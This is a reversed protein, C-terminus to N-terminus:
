WQIFVLGSAGDGGNGQEIDYDDGSKSITLSGGGGGSGAGTITSVTGLLAGNKFVAATLGNYSDNTGSFGGLGGTLGEKPEVATKGDGGIPMSTKENVIESYSNKKDPDILSAGKGGLVESSNKIYSSEGSKGQTCENNTYNQNTKIVNPSYVGGKGGKGPFMVVKQTLIQYTTQSLNGQEGGLGAFLKNQKILILGEKGAIREPYMVNKYIGQGGGGAGYNNEYDICYEKTKWNSGSCAQSEKEFDREGNAKLYYANNAGKIVKNFEIGFKDNYKSLEEIINYRKDNQHDVSLLSGTKKASSKHIVSNKVSSFTEGGWTFSNNKVADIPCAKSSNTDKYEKISKSDLAELVGPDKECILCNQSDKDSYRFDLRNKWLKGQLNQFEYTVHGGDTGGRAQAFLIPYDFQYDKYIKVSTNSTVDYGYNEHPRGVSLLMNYGAPIMTPPIYVVDGSGSTLARLQPKYKDESVYNIKGGYEGAGVLLFEYVGAETYKTKTNTNNVEYKNIISGVASGAGGGGGGIVTMVFNKAGKPPEFECGYRGEEEDFVIKGDKVQKNETYKAVLADGNWYCAYSGHPVSSQARHKKTIVPVSAITIICVVLLTILAEALSFGFIPQTKTEIKKM